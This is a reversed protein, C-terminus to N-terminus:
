VGTTDANLVDEVIFDEYLQNERGELDVYEDIDFVNETFGKKDLDSESKELEQAIKLQDIRATIEEGIGSENTYLRQVFTQWSHMVEDVIDKNEDNYWTNIWDRKELWFAVEGFSSFDNDAKSNQPTFNAVKTLKEYSSMLKDINEGARIYNDIQLSIKCLKQAQDHNLAGSVNQSSLIGNYLNELYVLEDRDYNKGWRLALDAFYNDNILPLEKDIEGKHKLELWKDYYDKWHFPEYESSEFQKSYLLFTNGVKNERMKELVRPIFPLDFMQCLKDVEQWDWNVKKLYLDICEACIDSVGDPYIWARTKIFSGMPRQRGCKCCRKTESMKFDEVKPLKPELM